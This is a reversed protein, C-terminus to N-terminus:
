SMHVFDEWFRWNWKWDLLDLVSKGSLALLWVAFVLIIKSTPERMIQPLKWRFCYKM